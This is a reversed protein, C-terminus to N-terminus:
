WRLRSRVCWVHRIALTKRKLCPHLTEHWIRIGVVAADDVYAVLTVHVRYPADVNDHVPRPGSVGEVESHVLFHFVRERLWVAAVM